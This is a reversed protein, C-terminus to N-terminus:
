LLQFEDIVHCLYAFFRLFDCKEIQVKQHKLFIELLSLWDKRPCPPDHCRHFLSRYAM